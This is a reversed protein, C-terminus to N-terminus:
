YVPYVHMLILIFLIGPDAKVAHSYDRLTRQSPLIICGLLRLTEYAKNSLHRLYLCWRIMLPHWRMGRQDKKAAAERQQKWFVRQFSGEPYSSLVQSEEETMITQLDGATAEDIEVAEKDIVEKIKEEMRSLKKQMVRNERLLSQLRREKEPTKLYRFNAHSSATVREASKEEAKQERRM